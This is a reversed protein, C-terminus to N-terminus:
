RRRWRRRVLWTACLMGTIALPTVHILPRFRVIDNKIVYVGLPRVWMGFGGGSNEDDGDTSGTRGAGGGGIVVAVPIVIVGGQEVPEGFVRKISIVDGITGTLETTDM